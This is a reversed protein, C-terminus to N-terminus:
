NPWKLALIMGGKKPPPQSVRRSGDETLDQDLITVEIAEFLIYGREM